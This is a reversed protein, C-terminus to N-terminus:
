KEPLQLISLMVRTTRIVKAVRDQEWQERCFAIEEATILEVGVLAQAELLTDLLLQRSAFTFPGAFEVERGDRGEDMRADRRGSLDKLFERYEVLPELHEYGNDVLAELSKDKAVVTCTWCGFRASPSDGCSPPEGNDVVFPCEGTANRYLTVLQRFTGGWPARNAMLIQWVEETTLDKILPWVMVNKVTGHPNMRGGTDHKAISEARARSEDSRTGILLVAGNASALDRIYKGTPQIKMRDTCWRFARSPAPYGRGIVNCWFSQGYAPKTQVVIVPMLLMPMAEAIKKLAGNVYAQVVPSEVLTDNSVIHIPRKRFSPPLDHLAQIVLLVVLTSDKGGSYGIIWPKTIPGRQYEERIARRIAEIRERLDLSPMKYDFDDSM